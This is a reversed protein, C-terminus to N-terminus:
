RTSVIEARRNGEPTTWTVTLAPVTDPTWAVLTDIRAPTHAPIRRWQRRGQLFLGKRPIIEVDYACGEGVKVLKHVGRASVPLLRWGGEPDLSRTM